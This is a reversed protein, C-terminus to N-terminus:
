EEDVSSAYASTWQVQLRLYVKATVVFTSLLM